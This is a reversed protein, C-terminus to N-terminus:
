SETDVLFWAPCRAKIVIGEKKLRHVHVRFM